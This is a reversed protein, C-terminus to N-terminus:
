VVEHDGYSSSGVGFFGRDNLVAPNLCTGIALFSMRVDSSYFFEIMAGRVVRRPEAIILNKKVFSPPNEPFISFIEFRTDFGSGQASCVLTSSGSQWANKVELLHIISNSDNVGPTHVYLFLFSVFLSPFKTEGKSHFYQSSCM